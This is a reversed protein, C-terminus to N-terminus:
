SGFEVRISNTDTDYSLHEIYRGWYGTQDHLEAAAKVLDNVIAEGDEVRVQQQSFYIKFDSNDTRYDLSDVSLTFKGTLRDLESDVTTTLVEFDQTTM